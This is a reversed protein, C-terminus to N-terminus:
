GTIRDFVKRADGGGAGRGASRVRSEQAALVGGRDAGAAGGDGGGVADAAAATAFLKGLARRLARRRRLAAASAAVDAQRRWHRLSLLAASAANCLDLARVSRDLFEAAPKSSLSSASSPNLLLLLLHCFERDCSVLVDLLKSLFRLSHHEHHSNSINNPPPDITDMSAVQNRRFSLLLLSRGLFGGSSGAQSDTAM